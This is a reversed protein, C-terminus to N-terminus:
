IMAALVAEPLLVGSFKSSNFQKVPCQLVQM